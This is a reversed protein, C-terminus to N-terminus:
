KNVYRHSWHAYTFEYEGFKFKQTTYKNDM